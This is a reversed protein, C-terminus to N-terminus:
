EDIPRGYTVADLVAPPASTRLASDPRAGLADNVTSFALRLAVYATIAFIRSDSFGADRLVQVDTASIHNPDRAVKRAWQALAQEAPSLRDDDGRLIGAATEADSRTALKTGWALSCYADGLTSACATVLIGRQRFSLDEKAYTEGMLDFLHKLTAPQYAWLRSVNMVYGLEAVDDDFIGQAEADAEQAALFGVTSM